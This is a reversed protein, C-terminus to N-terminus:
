KEIVGYTISSNPRNLRRFGLRDFETSDNREKMMVKRRCVRLAEKVADRSLAEMNAVERLSSIGASQHVPHRFMPDFYVVDFSSSPLKKLYALHDDNVVEIRRMAANFEPLDECWHKLGDKSLEAILRESEIGVVRGKEGVIYSAVIADGALGLTCDLFSDGEKLEAIEVMLDNDGKGMGKIRLLSLGPHFFFPKQDHRFYLRPYDQSVVLLADMNNYEFLDKISYSKREIYRGELKDAWQKAKTKIEDTPKHGTTIWM